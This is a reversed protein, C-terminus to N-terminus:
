AVLRFPTLRWNRWTAYWRPPHEPAHPRTARHPHQQWALLKWAWVPILKPLRPPRTTRTVTATATTTSTNGAADVAVITFVGPPFRTLTTEATDADLQELLAGNAYLEYHHIGTDDTAPTWAITLHGAAIRAHITTPAAPATVDLLAVPPPAPAPPEPAPAPDPPSPETTDTPPSHPTVAASAASSPGTGISNTATVTFTYATGNTLGTVVIPSATGTVTRGGSSTVTYSTIPSGNASPAAFSVTAKGDGADATVGTPAAPAGAGTVAGTVTGGALVILGGPKVTVTGGVTGSVRLTAGSEVTVAGPISGTVNLEGAQVDTAGTYTNTGSLTLTGTGVKTLSLVNSSGDVLAGSFTTSTADGVTLTPDNLAARVRGSGSL